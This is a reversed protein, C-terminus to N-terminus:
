MERLQANVDIQLQTVQDFVHVEAKNNTADYGDDCLRAELEDARQKVGQLQKSDHLNKNFEARLSTIEDQAAFLSCPESSAVMFSATLSTILISM